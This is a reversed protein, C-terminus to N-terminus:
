STRDGPGSSSHRTPANAGASDAIIAFTDHACRAWTFEAARAAAAAVNRERLERDRMLAHLTRAIDHPNEPDFYAGHERLLEPMTSRRACAVPIGASMAEVLTQGFTECSSPYAFGDARGYCGPLESYPVAGRYRLFAEAPDLRRLEARLRALPRPFAPGVLDLEVPIGRARLLAVARALHWPHKYADVTSVYLWRFPRRASYASVPEQPRPSARFRTSIGYPVVATRGPLAGIRAQVVRRNTESMFVTTDARRFTAAQTRELLIAKAHQVVGFRAREAPEFPILNQSVAVFPRFGGLYTGGPVFLVDCARAALASLRASKWATRVALAGDLASVHELRLWPRATIEELTRRGGWVVVSAVGHAEADVHRLVEVLHTLGGGMRINSADIGVRIGAGRGIVTGNARVPRPTM